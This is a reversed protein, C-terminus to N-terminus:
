EFNNLIGTVQMWQLIQSIFSTGILIVKTFHHHVVLSPGYPHHSPGRLNKQAIYGIKLYKPYKKHNTAQYWQIFCTAYVCLHYKTSLNCPRSYNNSSRNSTHNYNTLHAILQPRITLTFNRNHLTSLEIPVTPLQKM